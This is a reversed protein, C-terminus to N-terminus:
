GKCIPPPLEWYIKYSYEAQTFKVNHSKHMLYLGLFKNPSDKTVLWYNSYYVSLFILKMEKIQRKEAITLFLIKKTIFFLLEVYFKTIM